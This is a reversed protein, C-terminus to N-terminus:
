PRPIVVMLWFAYVAHASVLLCTDQQYAMHIDMGQASPPISGTAIM